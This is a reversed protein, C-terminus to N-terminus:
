MGTGATLAFAAITRTTRLARCVIRNACLVLTGGTRAQLLRRADLLVAIGVADIRTVGQLDVLVHAHGQDLARQVRARAQSATAATLLGWLRVRAVGDLARGGPSTQRDATEM